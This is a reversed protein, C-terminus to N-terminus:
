KSYIFDFKNSFTWPEELDDIQFTVNPPIFSPQIPSLDIALVQSELHEDAFDIAWIGTGTGVDLVRHIQKEEVVPCTFLKGNFTLSFLHHQLDLRDRQLVAPRVRM